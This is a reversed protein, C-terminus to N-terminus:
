SMGDGSEPSPMDHGSQEDHAARRYVALAHVAEALLVAAPTPSSATWPM